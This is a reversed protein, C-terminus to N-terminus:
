LFNNRIRSSVPVNPQNQRRCVLPLIRFSFMGTQVHKRLYQIRFWTSVKFGYVKSYPYNQRTFAKREFGSMKWWHHKSNQTQPIWLRLRISAPWQHRDSTAEENQWLDLCDKLKYHTISCEESVLFVVCVINVDKVCKWFHRHCPWFRSSEPYSWSLHRNSLMILLLLSHFSFKLSDWGVGLSKEPPMENRTTLAFVVKNVM